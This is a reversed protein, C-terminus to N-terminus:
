RCNVCVGKLEVTSSEISFKALDASQVALSFDINSDVEQVYDCEKCILFQAQGIHHDHTCAVYLSLSDICHVYGHKAWFQIARYVTPPKPNPIDKALKALLQYAGLPKGEMLLIKLVLRRPETLRYGHEICYQIAKDLIPQMKFDLKLIIKFSTKNQPLLTNCQLM